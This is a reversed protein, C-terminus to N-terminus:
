SMGALAPPGYLLACSLEVSFWSLPKNLVTAMVFALVNAGIVAGLFSCTIIAVGKLHESIIGNGQRPGATWDSFRLTVFLISTSLLAVYLIIATKFSYVVFHSLVQYFVTNPKSYGSTLSPLPSGDSSLYQLLALTNEAM